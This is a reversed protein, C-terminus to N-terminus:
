HDADLKSAVDVGGPGQGPWVSNLGNLFSGSNSLGPTPNERQGRGRHGAARTASQRSEASVQPFCLPGVAIASSRRGKGEQCPLQQGTALRSPPLLAM